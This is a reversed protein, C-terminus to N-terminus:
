ILVTHGVPLFLPQLLSLVGLVRYLVRYLVSNREIVHQTQSERIKSERM